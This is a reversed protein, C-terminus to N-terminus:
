LMMGGVGEIASASEIGNDEGGWGGDGGSGGGGGGGCIGPGEVCPAAASARLRRQIRFLSSARHM